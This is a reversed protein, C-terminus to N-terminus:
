CLKKIIKVQFNLWRDYGRKNRNKISGYEYPTIFPKERKGLGKKLYYSGDKKVEEKKFKYSMDNSM